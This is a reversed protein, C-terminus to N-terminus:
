DRGGAAIAHGAFHIVTALPANRVFADVTADDASLVTLDRYFRAISEGERMARVLPATDDDPRTPSSVVLLRPESGEVHRETLAFYVAASANTVLEHSEILFVGRADRLASFAVTSLVNDPVLVLRKRSAIRAAIPEILLQHLRRSSSQAARRDDANVDRSFGAVVDVLAERAIPHAIVQVDSGEVVFILLRDALAVYEIIVTDDPLRPRVFSSAPEPTTLADRLDRARAREAYAFAREPDRDDVALAIAADFLDEVAGFVGWRMEGRPLSERGSELEAIGAEFDAAARTRDGEALYARGRRLLVQPLFVRRGRPQFSDIAKTLTAIADRPASLAAEVVLAEDEMLSSLPPDNLEAIERRAAALDNRAREIDGARARLQSRSLFMQVRRLPTGETKCLDLELKLFSEAEDWRGEAMAAQTLSAIALLLRQNRQRGLEPLAMTRERWASKTDGIQDFFEARLARMAAALNSEGLREFGRAAEDLMALGVGWRGDLSNYLGLQWQLQARHAPFNPPATALLQELAARAEIVRGGDYASNAAFYRALLAVPSRGRELNMAAEEFLVHARAAKNDRYFLQADSFAVHGFALARRTRSDAREIAAVAERLMQDGRDDSLAHGLARAVALHKEAEARNGAVEAEGWWRLIRTEGWRRADQRHARVFAAAAPASQLEPYNTELVRAFPPEPALLRVHERAENAWGSQTDVALYRRWAERSQDRLAYRELILARNFLAEPMWPDIRLAADCAALSRALSRPDNATVAVDYHAAALDNWTASDAPPGSTDLLSVAEGAHNLVMYALAAARKDDALRQASASELISSATRSFRENMTKVTGKRYPAWAFGGSLRAEIERARADRGAAVLQEIRTRPRLMHAGALIAVAAILLAVIM